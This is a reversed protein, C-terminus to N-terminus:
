DPLISDKGITRPSDKLSEKFPPDNPPTDGFSCNIGIQPEEKKPTTNKKKKNKKAM